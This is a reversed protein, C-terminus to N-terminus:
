KKARVFFSPGVMYVPPKFIQMWQKGARGPGKKFGGKFMEM